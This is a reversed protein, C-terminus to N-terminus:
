SVARTNLSSNAGAEVPTLSTSLPIRFREDPTENIFRKQVHQIMTKQSSFTLRQEAESFSLWEYADHEKPCLLIDQPTDIFAVFTPVCVTSDRALAYFMEVVDTAFFRDPVFGTEEKIERLAAQWSTEDKEIYGTVMQWLGRLDEGSRRMLLYQWGDIGKKLIYASICFPKSLYQDPVEM